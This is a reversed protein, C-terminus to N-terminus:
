KFQAHFEEYFKPLASGADDRVSVDAKRSFPTPEPNIEIIYAGRSKAEFPLQAAPYIQASTGISFMLECSQVANFARNLTERPLSEGFWVVDPRVRGGCDCRKLERMNENALNIIKGCSNCKHRHINGHLEYITQNGAREHLGDVNQTIVVSRKFLKQFDSISTHGANPQAQLIAERRDAYWNLVLDPDERFGAQSALKMPDYKSWHGDPDRFTAIGSEASIGAGTFFVVQSDRNFRDLPISTPNM